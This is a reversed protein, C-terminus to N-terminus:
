GGARNGRIRDMTVILITVITEEFVVLRGGVRRRRELIATLPTGAAMRHFLKVIVGQTWRWQGVGGGEDRLMVAM